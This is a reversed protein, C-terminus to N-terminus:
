KPWTAWLRFVEAYRVESLKLVENPFSNALFFPGGRLHELVSSGPQNIPALYHVPFLCFNLEEQLDRRCAAESFYAPAWGRRGKPSVCIRPVLNVFRVPM